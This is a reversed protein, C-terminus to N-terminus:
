RASRGTASTRPGRAQADARRPGGPFRGAGPETRGRAQRRRHRDQRHEDGDRGDAGRLGVRQGAIRRERVVVKKREYDLKKLEYKQGAEAVQLATDAALKYMELTAREETDDLSLLPQKARIVDNKKVDVKAVVGRISFGIKRVDSPVTLGTVAM